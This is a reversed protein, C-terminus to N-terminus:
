GDQSALIKCTAFDTPGGGQRRHGRRRQGILGHRAHLVTLRFPALRTYSDAVCSRYGVTTPWCVSRQTFRKKGRPPGDMESLESRWGGISRMAHSCGAWRCSPNALDPLGSRGGGLLANSAVRVDDYHFWRIAPEHPTPRGVLHTHKRGRGQYPGTTDAPILFHRLRRHHVAVDPNPSAVV